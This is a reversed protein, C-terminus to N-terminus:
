YGYFRVRVPDGLRRKRSVDGLKSMIVERLLPYGHRGARGAVQLFMSVLSLTPGIVSAFVRTSSEGCRTKAVSQISRTSNCGAHRSLALVGKPRYEGTGSRPPDSLRVRELSRTQYSKSSLPDTTLRATAAQRIEGAFPM